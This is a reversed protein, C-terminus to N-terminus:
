GVKFLWGTDPDEHIGKQDSFECSHSVLGMTISKPTHDDDFELTWGCGCVLKLRIADGFRWVELRFADMEACGIVQGNPWRSCSATM